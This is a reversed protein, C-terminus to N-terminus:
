SEPSQQSKKEPSRDNVRRDRFFASTIDSVFSKRYSLSRLYSSDNVYCLPQTLDLDATGAEAGRLGAAHMHVGGPHSIATEKMTHLFM